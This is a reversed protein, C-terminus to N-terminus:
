LDAARGVSSLWCIKFKRRKGANKRIWHPQVMLPMAVLGANESLLILM